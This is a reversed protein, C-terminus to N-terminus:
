QGGRINRFERPGQILQRKRRAREEQNVAQDALRREIERNAMEAAKRTSRDKRPSTLSGALGRQALRRVAIALSPRTRQHRRWEDIKKLFSGSLPITVRKFKEKM